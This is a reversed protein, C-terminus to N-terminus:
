LKINQKILQDVPLKRVEALEEPTLDETFEKVKEILGSFKGIQSPTYHKTMDLVTGTDIVLPRGASDKVNLIANAYSQEDLDTDSLFGKWAESYEDGLNDLEQMKEIADQISDKLEPSVKHGAEELSKISETTKRCMETLEAKISNFEPNNVFNKNFDELSMKKSAELSLDLNEMYDPMEVRTVNIQAHSNVLKEAEESMKAISYSPIEIAKTVDPTELGNQTVHDNLFEDLSKDYDFDTLKMESIKEALDGYGGEWNASEGSKWLRLMDQIKIKGDYNPLKSIIEKKANLTDEYVERMEAIKERLNEALDNEPLDIGGQEVTQRYNEYNELQYNIISDDKLIDSFEQQGSLPLSKYLELNLNNNFRNLAEETQVLESHAQLDTTLWEESPNINEIPAGEVLSEPGVVPRVLVSNDLPNVFSRPEVVLPGNNPESIVEAVLKPPKIETPNEPYIAKPNVKIEGEKTLELIEGPNSIRKELGSSDIVKNERLIHNTEKAVAKALEPSDENITDEPSLGYKEPDAKIRFEVERSIPQWFGEKPRVTLREIQAALDESGVEIPLDATTETSSPIGEPKPTAGGVVVEPQAEIKPTSSPEYSLEADSIPHSEGLDLNIQEEPSHGPFYSKPEPNIARGDAFYGEKPLAHKLGLSNSVSNELAGSAAAFGAGSAVGAAITLWKNRTKLKDRKLLFEEHQKQIDEFSAKSFTESSLVKEEFQKAKKELRKDLFSSVLKSVGTGILSGGFGRALRLGAIGTLGVMGGIAIGPMSAAVATGLATSMALKVLRPQKSYSELTTKWWGKEKPPWTEIKKEELYASEKIVYKEILEAQKSAMKETTQEVTWAKMAEEREKDLEIKVIQRITEQYKKYSNSSLSSLEEEKTRELDSLEKAPKKQKFEQWTSFSNIYESRAEAILEDPTKEEEPSVEGTKQSEEKPSNSSDPSKLSPLSETDKNESSVNSVDEAEVVPINQISENTSGVEPKPDPNIIPFEFKEVGM